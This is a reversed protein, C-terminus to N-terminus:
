SCYSAFCGTEGPLDTSGAEPEVPTEATEAGTGADEMSEGDAQPTEAASSVREIKLTGDEAIVLQWRARPAPTSLQATTQVTPQATLQTDTRNAAPLSAAPSVSGDPEIVLQPAAPQAVQPTSQPLTETTRTEAAIAAPGMLTLSASTHLLAGFFVVPLQGGSQSTSEPEFPPLQSNGPQSNGPQSRNPQSSGSM